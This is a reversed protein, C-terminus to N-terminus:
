YKVGATKAMQCVIHFLERHGNPNEPDINAISKRLSEAMGSDYSMLFDFSINKIRLDICRLVLIRLILGLDAIISFKDKSMNLLGPYRRWLESELAENILFGRRFCIDDCYVDEIISSLINIANQHVNDIYNYPFLQPFGSHFLLVHSLEHAIIAEGFKLPFKLNGLFDIVVYSCKEDIISMANQFNYDNSIIGLDEAIERTIIKFCIGKKTIERSFKWLKKTLYM